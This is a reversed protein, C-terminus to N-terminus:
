HWFVYVPMQFIVGVISWGGGVVFEGLILGLFFPVARRYLGLGGHKLIVWKATWSILFSFWLWSMTFTTGLPYAVPHLPLWLWRVKLFMLISTFLFGIGMFVSGAIDAGTPYNLWRELRLLTEGGWRARLAGRIYSIELLQWFSVLAGIAIALMMAWPLRRPNSVPAALKFGELQHPMIHGRQARTFGWFLAIVSLNSAGLRKPGLTTLLIADPGRWYLEHAPHGLEARMRTIAISLLFYIGFFISAVGLSMGARNAFLVLFVSAIFFGTLAIGYRMPENTDNSSGKTFLSKLHFRSLWLAILGICIYSGASQAEEYPFGPLSQWGAISGFVREAKWFLFFFWCSFSLDLPVFFAIGIAYPFCRLRIRGIANWPKETFLHRLDTYLLIEPVAPNLHHLSNLMNLGGAIGFGIWMLRNSLLGGRVDKALELPLQIIPYSLREHETWQKRFISAMCLMVFGLASLFLSWWLVPQLWGYIHKATYLTSDGDYYGKLVGMDDVTLWRPMHRWFLERWENEPTVFWFPHGLIQILVQITDFGGVVTALSLLTYITLLEAPQLAYRPLFKKLPLNLLTLVFLCFIVNYLLSLTGPPGGWILGRQISWYSNPPILLLAIIISRWTIRNRIKERSHIQSSPNNM